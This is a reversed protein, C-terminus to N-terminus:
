KLRCKRGIRKTVSPKRREHETDKAKIKLKARHKSNLHRRLLSLLMTFDPFIILRTGKLKTRVKSLRDTLHLFQTM